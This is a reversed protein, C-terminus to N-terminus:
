VRFWTSESSSGSTGDLWIGGAELLSSAEPLLSIVSASKSQSYGLAVSKIQNFDKRIQCCFQNVKHGQSRHCAHSPAPLRTGVLRVTCILSTYISRYPNRLKPEYTGTCAKNFSIVYVTM